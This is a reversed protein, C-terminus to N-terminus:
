SRPASASISFAPTIRCFACDPSCRCLCRARKRGACGDVWSPWAPQLSVGEEAETIIYSTANADFIDYTPFLIPVDRMRALTRAHTRFKEQYEAFTHECGGLVRVSGDGSRECLTDPFFEHIQCPTHSVTDLGIYSIRDGGSREAAGVLYRDALITRVPLCAPQNQM